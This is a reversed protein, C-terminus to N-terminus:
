AAAKPPFMAMLLALQEDATQRRPAAPKRDRRSPLVSALKPLREHRDFAVGHWVSAIGLELYDLAREGHANM